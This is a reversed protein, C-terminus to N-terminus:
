CPDGRWLEGCRYPDITRAVELPQSPGSSVLARGAVTAAGPRGAPQRWRRAGAVRAGSRSDPLRDCPTIRLAGATGSIAAAAVRRTLAPIGTTVRTVSM